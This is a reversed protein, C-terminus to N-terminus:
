RGPEEKDLAALLRDVRARYDDPYRNPYERFQKSDRGERLAEVADLPQALGIIQRMLSEITQPTEPESPKDKAFIGFSELCPRCVHLTKAGHFDMSRNSDFDYHKVAVGVVWFQNHTDQEKGCRDCKYITTITM